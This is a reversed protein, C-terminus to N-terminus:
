DEKGLKELVEIAERLERVRDGVTEAGGEAKDPFDELFRVETQLLRVAGDFRGTDTM